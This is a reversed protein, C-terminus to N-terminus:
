EDNTFFFDAGAAGRHCAVCGADGGLGVRGALPWGEANRAVRGDREYKAFFWDGADPSYGEIRKMVTIAGLTDPDRASFNEKVVLYQDRPAQPEAAATENLFFRVFEGHPANSEQFGAKGPYPQWARYGRMENWVLSAIWLDNRTGFPADDPVDAYLPDNSFLYDNGEAGRHCPICGSDGGKGVRGALPVGAPNTSLTGDLEFKAFFWDGEAPNYGAIRRMVTISDLADSEAERYNEKVVMYQDGPNAAEERAARNLYFRVFAGHPANSEQFGPKGPYPPWDQYGEQLEFWVLSAIRLDEPTGFVAEEDGGVPPPDEGPPDEAPPDEAPPDEVPPEEGRLDNAFLFDGDQAARHCAICGVDSGTGVRGALAVGEENTSVAGDPEFKVFFWDGEEPNYRDIRKMVTIAGLTSADAEAFNEKIIVYGDSPAAPNAAALANVFFRVYNGHPAGSERFGELGPYTSWETTYGAMEAWLAAAIDLDEATGFPAPQAEPPPDNPPNAGNNNAPPPNGGNNNNAPPPSNNNQGAPPPDNTYPDLPTPGDSGALTEAATEEEGFYDCAGLPLAWLLLVGFRM